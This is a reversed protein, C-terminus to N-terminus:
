ASCSSGGPLKRDLVGKIIYSMLTAKPADFKTVDSGDPRVKHTGNIGPDVLYVAQGQDNVLYRGAPGAGTETKHVSFYEGGDASGQSGQLKEKM